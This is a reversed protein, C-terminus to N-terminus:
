LAKRQEHFASLWAAPDSGLRQRLEAGLAITEKTGSMVALWDPACGLDFEAVVSRDGSRILLQREAPLVERIIRVEDAPVRFAAQYDAERAGPDGLFVQTRVSASIAKAAASDLAQAPFQTVFVVAANLKRIRVLLEGFRQGFLSDGLAKWAEEFVVLVPTEGDLLSELIHFQYALFPGREPGDLIQTLDVGFLGLSPEFSNADHDFLWARGGQGVWPQLRDAVTDGTPGIYPLFAQLQSLSRQTEPLDFVANVAAEIATEEEARWASERALLDKTWQQLFARNRGTDPLSFPNIGTAQGRVVRYYEGGRATIYLEASRDIDWWITRAGLGAAAAELMSLFVTKGQGTAGIVATHGVDGVHLNFAYRERRRTPLWLLAPGWHANERRGKQSGSWDALSALNALSLPVRRAAYGLNGPLQAWYAAERNASEQVVDFDAGAMADDVTRLAQRLGRRHEARVLLSLHSEGFTVGESGVADRADLLAQNISLDEQEVQRARRAAQHILHNSRARGFFRFSITLVLECEATLLAEWVGARTQDPYERVGLLASVMRGAPGHQEIHEALPPFGTEQQMLREALIHPFRARLPRERGELILALRSAIESFAEGRRRTVGLRRAGYESLRSECRDVVSDLEDLAREYHGPTKETTAHASLPVPTRLQRGRRAFSVLWRNRYARQSRLEANWRHVIEPDHPRTAPAPEDRTRVLHVWVAFRPDALQRWLAKRRGFLTAVSEASLLDMPLGDLELMAVLQGDRCQLADDTLHGLYPIRDAARQRSRFRRWEPLSRLAVSGRSM